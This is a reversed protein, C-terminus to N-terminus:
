SHTGPSTLLCRQAETDKDKESKQNHQKKIGRHRSNNPSFPVIFLINKAYHRAGQSLQYKNVPLFDLSLFIRLVLSIVQVHGMCGRRVRTQVTENVRDNECTSATGSREECHGM